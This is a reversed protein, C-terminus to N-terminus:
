REPAGREPVLQSGKTGVYQTSWRWGTDETKQSGTLAYPKPPTPEQAVRTSQLWSPPSITRAYDPPGAISATAAGLVAAAIAIRITTTM